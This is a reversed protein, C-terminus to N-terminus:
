SGGMAGKVVSIAFRGFSFKLPQLVVGIGREPFLDDPYEPGARLFWARSGFMALLDLGASPRWPGVDPSYLFSVSVGTAYGFFAGSCVKGELDSDPLVEYSAAVAAGPTLARTM